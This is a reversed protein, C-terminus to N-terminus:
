GQVLGHVLGLRAGAAAGVEGTLVLLGDDIGDHVVGRGLVVVGEVSVDHEGVEVADVGGLAVLLLCAGRGTGAM